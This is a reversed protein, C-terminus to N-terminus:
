ESRRWELYCTGNYHNKMMSWIEEVYDEAGVILVIKRGTAIMRQTCPYFQDIWKKAERYETLKLGYEEEDDEEPPIFVM